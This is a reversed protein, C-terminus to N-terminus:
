ISRNNVAFFVYFTINEFCNINITCICNRNESSIDSPKTILKSLFKSACPCESCEKVYERIYFVFVSATRSISYLLPLQVYLQHIQLLHKSLIYYIFLCYIAVYQDAVSVNFAYITLKFTRMYGTHAYTCRYISQSYDM